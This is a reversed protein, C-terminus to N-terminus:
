SRWLIKRSGTAHLKLAKRVKQHKYLEDM